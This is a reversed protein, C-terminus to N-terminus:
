PQKSDMLLFVIGVRSRAAISGPTITAQQIVVDGAKVHV